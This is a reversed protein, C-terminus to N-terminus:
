SIKASTDRDLKKMFFYQCNVSSEAFIARPSTLEELLPNYTIEFSLSFREERKGRRRGREGGSGRGEGGEERRELGLTAASRAM